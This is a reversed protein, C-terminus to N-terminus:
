IRIGEIYSNICDSLLIIIHKGKIKYVVFAKERALGVGDKCDSSPGYKNYNAAANKDSWCQARNRVAFYKFGKAIAVRLCREVTTKTDKSDSQNLFDM